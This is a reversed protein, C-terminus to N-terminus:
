VKLHKGYIKENKDNNTRSIEKLKNSLLKRNRENSIDIVEDDVIDPKQKDKGLSVFEHNKIESSLNKIEGKINDYFNENINVNLNENNTAENYNILEKFM